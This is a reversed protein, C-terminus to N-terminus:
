EGRRLMLVFKDFSAAVRRENRDRPADHLHEYVAGRDDVVLFNGSADDNIPLRHKALAGESDELTQRIEDVGIFHGLLAEDDDTGYLVPEVFKVAAGYKSFWWRLPDPLPAGLLQSLTRLEADSLPVPARGDVTTVGGLAAVHKELQEFAM